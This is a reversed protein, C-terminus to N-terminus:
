EDRKRPRVGESPTPAPAGWHRSSKSEVSVARDNTTEWTVHTTDCKDRAEDERVLHSLNKTEIPHQAIHAVSLIWHILWHVEFRKWMRECEKVNKSMREHHIKVKIKNKKAICANAPTRSEHKMAEYIRGYASDIWLKTMGWQQCNANLGQEPSPVKLFVGDLLGAETQNFSAYYEQSSYRSFILFLILCSYLAINVVDYQKCYECSELATWRRQLQSQMWMLNTLDGFWVEVEVSCLRCQSVPTVPTLSILRDSRRPVNPLRPSWSISEAKM